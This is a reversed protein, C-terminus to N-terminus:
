SCKEKEEEEEKVHSYWHGVLKGFALSSFHCKEREKKKQSKISLPNPTFYESLVASFAM